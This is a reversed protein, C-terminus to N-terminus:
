RPPATRHGKWVWGLRGPFEGSNMKMCAPCVWAQITPPATAAQVSEPWDTFQLTMEAGCHGCSVHLILPQSPGMEDLTCPIAMATLQPV